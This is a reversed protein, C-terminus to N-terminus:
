PKTGMQLGPLLAPNEMMQQYRPDDKVIGRCTTLDVSKLLEPTNEVGFQRYLKRIIGVGEVYHLNYSDVEGVGEERKACCFSLLSSLKSEPNKSKPLSHQCFSKQDM